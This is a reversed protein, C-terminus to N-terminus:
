RRRCFPLPCPIKKTIFFISWILALLGQKAIKTNKMKAVKKIAKSTRLHRWNKSVNNWIGFISKKYTGSSTLSMDGVNYAKRINM